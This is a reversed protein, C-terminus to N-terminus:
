EHEISRIAQALGAKVNRYDQETPQDPWESLGAIRAWEPKWAKESFDVSAIECLRKYLTHCESRLKGFAAPDLPQSEAVVGAAPELGRLWDRMLTGDAITLLHPGDLDIDGYKAVNIGAGALARQWTGLLTANRATALDRIQKDIAKAIGAAKGTCRAGLSDAATIPEPEISKPKAPKGKPKPSPPPANENAESGDDDEPALGVMPFLSYRRAYTIASGVAQANGAVPMFLPRSRMWQNGLALTTEVAVGREVTYADQVVAVGRRSLTARLAALGDGLDAYTYSYGPKGDKGPIKAEHGAVLKVYDAQADALAKSLENIEPSMEM